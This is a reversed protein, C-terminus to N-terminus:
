YLIYYHIRVIINEFRVKPYRRIYAHGGLVLAILIQALSVEVPRLLLALSKIVNIFAFGTMAGALIYVLIEIKDTRVTFM